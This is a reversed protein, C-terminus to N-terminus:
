EWDDTLILNSSVGRQILYTKFVKIMTPPGSIFFVAYPDSSEYIKAIDLIGDRDQYVPFVALQSNIKKANEIEPQYLNLTYERFGAYFVPNSYEGFSPHNFLSLFPTIGTGGSIFVTNKKNHPQTFLDGYPLKLTVEKGPKLEQQMRNTFLGKSAYTIRILEENPSSQMSFCRSEPWGESPDYPDLALHMFQGPSYKYPKDLSRFAVTHLGVVISICSVVESRYKKVLAM